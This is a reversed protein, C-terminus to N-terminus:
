ARENELKLRSARALEFTPDLNCADIMYDLAEASHGLGQACLGLNYSTTASRGFDQESTKFMALGEAFYRLELLVVGCNFALVNESHTVPYRNAWTNLVAQRLDHREATVTRLQRAIIPFLRLFATTDWRTLRLVTMAQLVSTEELHANMWSMLTFLDDPGFGNVAHEYAKRTASFEHAPPHQLFACINLASFHKQPLLAEGGISWFYRAFADFNVQQSFCHGGGHFEMSPTGQSFALEDERTFGKDAALVMMRGDCSKNLEQLLSLAASPFLITAAPLSKRYHELIASWSKDAYRDPAVPVNKFSLQLSSLSQAGVTSNENAPSTTTILAESINGHAVIFADQPLSDFVYNAIVVLPAGAKQPQSEESTRSAAARVLKFELIGADVFEALDRNARWEAILTESCDALCYRIVQPAIKKEQLLASINRLFLCSFKGTGAGLELIRLPNEASIPPSSKQTHALCDELYAAVIEAYMEAILPNNTIYSPVLDETWAKLGRQAYFKEQLRWIVSQSLPVGAELVHPGPKTASVASGQELQTATYKIPLGHGALGREERVM